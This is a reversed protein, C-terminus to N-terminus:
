YLAQIMPLSYREVPAFDDRLAPVDHPLPKTWENLLAMFAIGAEARAAEPRVAGFPVEDSQILAALKKADPLPQKRKFALLLINQMKGGNRENNELFIHVQPFVQSFAAHIARLLQGSDGEVAAIINGAYIGDDTLAQSILGACEVTGLHFPINYASGFTDGMIIDYGEAPPSNESAGADRRFRNLFMRADEHHVRLRPDPKLSFYKESLETMGPDIEVVDLRKLGSPYRTHLLYKPVSYGGGGLLLMNKANPRLHWALSYYRTYNLLLSEPRKVYMGSHVLHPDTLIYRVDEGEPNVQTVVSIHSYLTDLSFNGTLAQERQRALGNMALSVALALGLVPILLRLLNKGGFSLASALMLAAALFYIVVGSGLWSILLYGGLFTGLISGLSSIAFFRGILAGSNEARVGREQIAVRIVYPSVMGMLLSPPAFLASAAALAASQLSVGLGGIFSLMQYHGFGVLLVCLGASLLLLGLKASGPGRDAAKGGLWYGLSLSALVVGIIATWVLVSSGLHPAMLRAGTMELAMVAAGSIFAILELMNVKAKKLPLWIM